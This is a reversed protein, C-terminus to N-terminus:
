GKGSPSLAQTVEHPLYMTQYDTLREMLPQGNCDFWIHWTDGNGTRLYAEYHYAVAGLFADM